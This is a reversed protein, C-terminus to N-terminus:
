VKQCYLDTWQRIWFQLAEHVSSNQPQMALTQAAANLCELPRDTMAPTAGNQKSLKEGNPGLVLQTHLYQPAEYGLARQLQIQRATNDVLDSGRVIHTVGSLADDVVVSLQYAWVSDARKIIFDGVEKRVDQQQPGLRRDTWDIQGAAAKFRWAVNRPSPPTRTVGCNPRCTGPYIKNRNRGIEDTSESELLQTVIQARSCSCPYIFGKQNLQDFTAEYGLTRQSQWQVPESSLLQCDSLQKLIVQDTGKVCRDQDLDEIRIIWTGGHSQADLWSALAVVISGAHLPGTPSPAFRGIYGSM